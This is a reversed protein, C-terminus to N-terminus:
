GRRAWGRARRALRGARVRLRRAELTAVRRELATLLVNTALVEEEFATAVEVGFAPDEVAGRRTFAPQEGATLRRLADRVRTDEISAGGPDGPRDGNLSFPFCLVEVPYWGRLTSAASPQSGTRRILRPRRGAPLATGVAPAGPALRMTARELLPGDGNPSPAFRREIAQIADVDPPLLRVLDALSGGSPWWFEAARAEAIWAAGLDGAASDWGSSSDRVARVAGNERTLLDSGPVDPVLVIDVGAALHFALQAEVMEPPGLETLALVLV